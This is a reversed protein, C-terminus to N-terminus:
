LHEAVTSISTAIWSDRGRSDDVKGYAQIVYGEKPINTKEVLSAFMVISMMGDDPTEIDIFAMPKKKKDIHKKVKVVVGAICNEAQLRRVYDYPDYKIYFGLLERELAAMEKEDNIHDAELPKPKKRRVNENIIRALALLAPRDEELTDFAGTAVLAEKKDIPVSPLRTCFNDFSEFHDSLREVLIARRNAEGLGKIGVLGFRVAGEEAAFWETSLNVDPPLIPVNHRRMDQIIPAMKEKDHEYSNLLRAYFEAPYHTKLFACWYSILGYATAHAKNFSYRAFKEIDEFLSVAVERKYRRAMMGAVFKDRQQDMVDKKKKGIAKRLEDAETDDYGALVVAAAMVQEQYLLVGYTGRTVESLGVPAEVPEAGHRRRIYSALMGSDLPGPRYLAVADIMHGIHAPQLSKIMTTFGHREVQFVGLTDGQSLAAFTEPDDLPIDQLNIGVDEAAQSIVDITRLGLLDIKLFGLDEVDYMDWAISKKDDMDIAPILDEQERDILAIGAAHTGRHTQIGDLDLFYTQQEPPILEFRRTFEKDNELLWALEKDVKIGDGVLEPLNEEMSKILGYDVEAAMGISKLANRVGFTQFASIQYASGYREQIHRLLDGRRLQSVDVDIDPMTNRGPTLFRSFLLDFRIPDIETIGLVYAVLSGGSSGRGPGVAIGNDRAWKLIDALILFYGAYGKTNLLDLEMELRDTYEQGKDMDIIGFQMMRWMESRAMDTLVAEETAFAPLVAKPMVGNIESLLDLSCQAAIDETIDIEDITLGMARMDEAPKVYLQDTQDWRDQKFCKYFIRRTGFEAGQEQDAYHIDNTAVVPVHTVRSFYRLRDLVLRQHEFGGVMGELYFRNPFCGMYFAIDNGAQLRDIKNGKEDGVEALVINDQVRGSLCGSLCILGENHDILWTKDIRPRWHFGESYARNHLYVLNKWGALNQALLTIHYYRRGEHPAPTAVDITAEYAEMGFIPKIGVEKCAKAHAVVGHLGGHDTLALATQGLKAAREALERPQSIGDRFSYASHVHLHIM